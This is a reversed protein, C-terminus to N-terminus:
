IDFLTYKNDHTRLRYSYFYLTIPTVEIYITDHFFKYYMHWYFVQKSILIPYIQLKHFLFQYIQKKKFM